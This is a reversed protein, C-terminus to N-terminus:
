VTCCLVSVLTWKVFKNIKNKRFCPWALIIHSLSCFTCACVCVVLQFISWITLQNLPWYITNIICVSLSPVLTSSLSLSAVIHFYVVFYSLSSRNLKSKISLIETWEKRRTNKNNVAPEQWCLFENASAIVCTQVGFNKTSQDCDLVCACLCICECVWIIHIWIM